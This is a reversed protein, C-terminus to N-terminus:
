QGKQRNPLHHWNFVGDGYAGIATNLLRITAMIVIDADNAGIEGHNEGISNIACYNDRATASSDGNTENTKVMSVVPDIPAM